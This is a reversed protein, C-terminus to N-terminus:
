EGSINGKQRLASSKKQIILIECGWLGERDAVPIDKSKRNCENRTIHGKNNTKSLTRHRTQASHTIRNSIHIKIHQTKNYIVVAVPYFGIQM